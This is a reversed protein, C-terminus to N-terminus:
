SYVRHVRETFRTLIEYPITSALKAIEEISIEENEQKGILVVEDGVYAADEGLDVMMQDMCITGIIQRRKGRILVEGRNSLIRPYGDGYGIPITAVRMPKKARFTHGYSIGEGPEVVKFYSVESKLSFISRVDISAKTLNIGFSLLGPRVMQCCAQPLNLLAASNALHLIIGKPFPRIFELFRSIQLSNAPHDKEDSNALHSYVGVLKLHSSKEIFNAVELSKTPRSGTRNMGTEIELHVLGTHGGKKLIEEALKAKYLSSISFELAHDVCDQVSEEYLPGFVLIPLTIGSARLQVGETVSSVGLYDVGSLEAVKAIPILGHGYANAKIPLCYLTGGIHARVAQINKQFQDLDIEIKTPHFSRKCSPASLVNQQM